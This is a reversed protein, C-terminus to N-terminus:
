RFSTTLSSETIWHDIRGVRAKLVLTSKWTPGLSPVIDHRTLRRTSLSNDVLSVRDPRPQLSLPRRTRVRITILMPRTPRRRCRRSSSSIPFIRRPTTHPITTDTKIIIIINSQSVTSLSSEKRIRRPTQLTPIIFRTIIQIIRIIRQGAAVQTAIQTTNITTTTISSAM